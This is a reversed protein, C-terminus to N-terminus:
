LEKFLPTTVPPILEPEQGEEATIVIINPKLAMIIVQCNQLIDSM